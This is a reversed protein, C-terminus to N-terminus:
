VPRPQHERSCIAYIFYTYSIVSAVILIALSFVLIKSAWAERRISIGFGSNYQMLLYIEFCVRSVIKKVCEEAADISFFFSGHLIDM